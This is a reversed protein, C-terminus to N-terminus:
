ELLLAKPDENPIPPFDGRLANVEHQAAVNVLDYRDM